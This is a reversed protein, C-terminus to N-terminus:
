GCWIQSIVGQGDVIVNLRDPSYDQTLPNGSSLIRVPITLRLPQLAAIEKGVLVQMAHVDCKGQPDLTACSALILLMPSANEYNRRREM